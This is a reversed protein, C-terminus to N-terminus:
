TKISYKPRNILMNLGKRWFVKSLPPIICLILAVIFYFVAYLVPFRIKPYTAKVLKHQLLVNTSDQKKGDFFSNVLLRKGGILTDRWKTLPSIRQKLIIERKLANTGAYQNSMSNGNKVWMLYFHLPYDKLFYDKLIHETIICQTMNTRDLCDLCNVRVVGTQNRHVIDNICYFFGDSNLTMELISLLQAKWSKDKKMIKKIPFEILNVFPVSENIEKIKKSLGSERGETEILSLTTISGYIEKLKQYHTKCIKINFDDDSFVVPPFPSVLPYQTWGFPLSGRIMVFSIKENNHIVVQETEVFNAANGDKDLGRSWFRPGVNRKSKRSILIWHQLQEKAYNVHGVIANILSPMEDIGFFQKAQIIAQENWIYEFRTPSNQYIQQLNLSLDVEKSFYFGYSDFGEKLLSLDSQNRSIPIIEFSVVKEIGFVPSILETDNSVVCFFAGEWFYVGLMVCFSIEETHDSIEHNEIIQHSNRNILVRKGEPFTVDFVDLSVRIM